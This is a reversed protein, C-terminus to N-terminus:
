TTICAPIRLNILAKAEKNPPILACVPSSSSICHIFQKWLPPCQRRQTDYQSRPMGLLHTMIGDLFQYNEMQCLKLLDALEDNDLGKKVYRELLNRLTSDALM